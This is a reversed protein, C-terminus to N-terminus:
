KVVGLDAKTQKFPQTKSEEASNGNAINLTMTVEDIAIDNLVEHDRGTLVTQAYREIVTQTIEAVEKKIDLIADHTFRNMLDELDGEKKLILQELDRLLSRKLENLKDLNQNELSEALNFTESHSQRQEALLSLAEQKQRSAEDLRNKIAEIQDDLAAISKKYGFRFALAMFIIFSILVIVNPDM